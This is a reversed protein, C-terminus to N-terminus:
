CEQFNWNLIGLRKTEISCKGSKEFLIKYDVMAPTDKWSQEKIQM